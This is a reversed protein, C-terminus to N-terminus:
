LFTVDVESDSANCDSANNGLPSSPVGKCLSPGSTRADVAERSEGLPPAVCWHGPVVDEPTELSVSLADARSASEEGVCVDHRHVLPLPGCQHFDATPRFLGYLASPFEASPGSDVDHECYM